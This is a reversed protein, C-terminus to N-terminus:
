IKMVALMNLGIRRHAVKESIKVNIRIEINIFKSLTEFQYLCM